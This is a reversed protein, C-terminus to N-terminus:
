SFLHFISSIIVIWSYIEHMEKTVSLHTLHCYRVMRGLRLFNDSNSRSLRQLSIMVITPQVPFNFFFLGSFLVQKQDVKIEHYIVIQCYHKFIEPPQVCPGSSGYSAQIPHQGDSSHHAPADGASAPKDLLGYNMLNYKLATHLGLWNRENTLSCIPKRQPRKSSQALFFITYKTNLSLPHCLVNEDKHIRELMSGLEMEVLSALFIVLHELSHVGFSYISGTKVPWASLM